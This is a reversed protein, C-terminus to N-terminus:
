ADMEARKPSEIWITVPGDNISFVQMDAQFRGTAVPLRASAKTCFSDYLARASAPDQAGEFSPRRGKRVDGYLTFQSVVLLSLGLDLVSRDMKGQDNEFIRLNLIKELTFDVDQETDGRGCGLYVLLGREIRGTTEGLVSVRAEAVRQVLARM